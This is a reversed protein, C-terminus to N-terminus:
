LFSRCLFYYPLPPNSAVEGELAQETVRKCLDDMYKDNVESARPPIPPPLSSSSSYSGSASSLPMFPKSNPNMQSPFSSTSKPRIVPPPPSPASQHHSPPSSATHFCMAVLYKASVQPLQNPSIHPMTSSSRSQNPLTMGKAPSGIRAAPRLVNRTKPVRLNM